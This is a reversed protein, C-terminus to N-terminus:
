GTKLELAEEVTTYDRHQVRATEKLTLVGNYTTLGRALFPNRKLAYVVGHDAIEKVHPLLANGYGQSATVPTAGPINDVCFHRIGDVEYVPNDWSTARCTEVAGNTDCAIDVIVCSPKLLKLMQRSILHDTRTKDWLVCNVIMDADTIEAELVDLSHVTFNKDPWALKTKYLTGPYSDFGAVRVGLGLLTRLAGQGVGGLGIVVAKCAPANFHPFFHRGSGGHCAFTLRLGELAGIEGALPCNPSGYQHIEEAAIATVKNELLHDLQVPDAASHLNTFIIQGARLYGFEQPLIEKVKIILAASEYLLKPNGIITAGAQQYDSDRAGSLLGADSEVLVNHKKTLENIHNPLLAVRGEGIKIEKAIAIDM